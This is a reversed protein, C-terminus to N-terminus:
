LRFLASVPLALRALLRSPSLAGRRSVTRAAGEDAAEDSRFGPCKADFSDCEPLSPTEPGEGEVPEGIDACTADLLPALFAAEADLCARLEGATATCGPLELDDAPIDACSVSGFDAEFEAVLGDVCADLGADTCEEEGLAYQFSCLLQALAPMTAETHAVVEECIAVAQDRNVSGLAQSDPVSVGDSGGCAALSLLVSSFLSVVGFKSFM